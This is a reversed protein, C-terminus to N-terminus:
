LAKEILMQRYKDQDKRTHYYYPHALPYYELAKSALEYATEVLGIKAYFKAAYRWTFILFEQNKSEKAARILKSIRLCQRKSSTLHEASIHDIELIKTTEPTEINDTLDKMENMESAETM